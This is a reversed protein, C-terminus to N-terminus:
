KLECAELFDDVAQMFVQPCEEHPVHGCDPLVALQSGPIKQSTEISYATPIIRDDDGTIVIVPMNLEALREELGSPRAAITFEYL